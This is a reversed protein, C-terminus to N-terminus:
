PSVQCASPDRGRGCQSLRPSLKGEGFPACGGLKRGMHQPWIAPHILIGSPRFSPSPGPSKTNSPSGAGRRLKRGMEMTALRSCADLHWETHLYAEAWALQTLNPGLGEEFFPRHGEGIKLTSTSFKSIQGSIRPM